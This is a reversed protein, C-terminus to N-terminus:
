QYFIINIIYIDFFGAVAPSKSLDSEDFQKDTKVLQLIIEHINLVKAM